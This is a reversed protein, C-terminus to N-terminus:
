SPAGGPPASSRSVLDIVNLYARATQEWTFHGLFAARGEAGLRARQQGDGALEALADALARPDNPPVVVGGGHQLAEPCGGLSTVIAPTAAAMAELTVLPFAEEWVAPLCFLHSERLERAVEDRPHLGLLRVFDPHASALAEIEASYALDDATLGKGGLVRVEIPVGMVELKEAAQILIHLGKGRVIRGIFLVKLRGGVPRKLPGALFADPDAGNYIVSSPVSPAQGRWVRDLVFRSVGCLQDIQGLVANRFPEPAESLHTNHMHLVLKPRVGWRRFSWILAPVYQPRNHVFVVDDDSLHPRLDRFAQRAALRRYPGLLRQHPWFEVRENYHHLATSVVLRRPEITGDAGSCYLSEEVLGETFRHVGEFWLMIANGRRNSCLGPAIHIVRM